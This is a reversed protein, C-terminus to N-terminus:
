LARRRVCEPDAVLNVPNSGSEDLATQAAQLMCALDHRSGALVLRAARDASTVTVTHFDGVDCSLLGATAVAGSSVMFTTTAAFAGTIAPEDVVHPKRVTV